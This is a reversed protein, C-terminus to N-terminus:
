TGSFCDMDGAPHSPTGVAFNGDPGDQRRFSKGGDLPPKAFRIDM